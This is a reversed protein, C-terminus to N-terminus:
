SQYQKGKLLYLFYDKENIVKCRGRPLKQKIGNPMIVTIYSEDHVKFVIGCGYNHITPMHQDEYLPKPDRISVYDHRKMQSSKTAMTAVKM